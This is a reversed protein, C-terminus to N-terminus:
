TLTGDNDGHEDDANTDLGWWSVLNTKESSILESYTKEMISQIQAQTLVASWVGVNKIKGDAYTPEDQWGGIWVDAALNHMATYSGSSAATGNDLIGNIYININSGAGGGTYTATIHTWTNQSISATSPRNINNGSTNDYLYLNLKDSADAGFSWESNDATSKSIVRFKTADIPNIWACVSFASDNSADGFSLDNTDAIEIYDTASETFSAFGTGIADAQVTPANDFGRPILPTIGGYLSTTQTPTNTATGDNDSSTSDLYDSELAWWSVLGSTLTGSLDTYTKYMVNQIETASLARNWVAVNKINGDFPYENASSDERVGIRLTDLDNVDSFWKSNTDTDAQVIGDIYMKLTTDDQTVAMHHWIGDDYTSAASFIDCLTSGAERIWFFATNDSKIGFSVDSAADTKDSATLIQKWTDSTSTKFWASITGTTLSSFDGIHADLDVYETSAAAFATSGEGVFKVEKPSNYPMYLKLGDKEYSSTLGGGKATSLGLSPM